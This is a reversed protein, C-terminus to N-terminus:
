DNHINLGDRPKSKASANPYCHATVFVAYDLPYYSEPASKPLCIIPNLSSNSTPVKCIGIKVIM